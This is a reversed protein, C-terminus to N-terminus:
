DLGEIVLTRQLKRLREITELRWTVYRAVLAPKETEDALGAGLPGDLITELQAASARGALEALVARIADLELGEYNDLNLSALDDFAVRAAEEGAGPKTEDTMKRM